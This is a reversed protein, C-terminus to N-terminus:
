LTDEKYAGPHKGTNYLFFPFFNRPLYPLKEFTINVNHSHHKRRKLAGIQLTLM